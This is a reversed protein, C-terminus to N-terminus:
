RGREKLPNRISDLLHRLEENKQERALVRLHEDLLHLRAEIARRHDEPDDEEIPCFVRQFWRKLWM